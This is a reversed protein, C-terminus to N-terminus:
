EAVPWPLATPQGDTFAGVAGWMGGTQRPQTSANASQAEWMAVGRFGAARAWRYKVTLSTPDDFWVQHRTGSTSLYDFYVSTSVPDFRWPDRGQAKTARLLSPMIQKYDRQPCDVQWNPSSRTCNPLCPAGLTANNDCVFDYGYWPLALILKDAPIGIQAFQELSKRLGPLPSNALQPPRAAWNPFDYGM